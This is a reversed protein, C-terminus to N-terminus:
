MRKVGKFLELVKDRLVGRVIEPKNRSDEALHEIRLRRPRMLDGLDDRSAGIIVKPINAQFIAAACMMCPENSCYIECDSLDSRGLIECAQDIALLEAHAGINKLVTDQAHDKAIVKGGQVVAAGFPLNGELKGKQAEEIALLMYSEAETM